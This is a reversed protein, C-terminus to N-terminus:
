RPPLVKLATGEDDLLPVGYDALIADIQPQLDRIMSNLQRKWSDEGPRVGMTIRYFMRPPGEEALLPTMVLTDGEAQVLPGGIPGWLIAVDIDGARLDAIMDSNPHEFRTDVMLHYGKVTPLLGQRALHSAPPTGAVVGIRRGKLRPDALSTVDALESDAPAVLVYASTYYHNTNLVMEDGQAFGVIVDCRNEILTRRVFGQAMPYWAYEVPVGLTDAFLAAIRNEFGEGAENSFPLNAPDACVRFASRSVLDTLQASAPPALTLAVAASLAASLAARLTRDAWAPM